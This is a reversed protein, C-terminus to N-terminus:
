KKLYNNAGDIQLVVTLEVETGQGPASKITCVGGIKELRRALNKLGHGSSIRGSNEATATAGPVFGRGDDKIIFSFGDPQTKLQLSVEAAAAHRVTNNLTEKVALFLNHRVEASLVFSPPQAPLDLRCRLGAQTAFEQFFKGVYTVLGDLTDNEPDIAWVIEDMAGVLEHATGSIQALHAPTEGPAARQALASQLMIQTLGAGLDDHIDRAIRERERAIARQQKLQELKKQLRRMVAFRVAGIIAAIITVGSLVDFWWTQWFYPRVALRIAAGKDSWIGDNNCATVQFIYKGPRLPGYHATRKGDAEVWGDDFGKLRYRFRVKDPAAFSLATYRFDFQHRGPPIQLESNPTRLESNKGDVSMEEIVVAPALRNVPVEDPQVSVLGKVTAFWLTGDRGRWCSPQYNGSCELTPLGDYLGYGVCPLSSIKGADFDRIWSKRFYFIGKHSGIWIKGMGDDLIQCIIDSPLGSQTTYRTFKGDKFRLLGGRFTGVWLTGDAEPLLSWIAQNGLNDNVPYATFKGGSFKYLGDADTGIWLDGQRDEALARIDKKDFGNAASFTIIVNNSLCALGNQRGIWLRGLHDMLLVKIGHVSNSRPPQSIKGDEFIYLDERGASLWVRGQGDPFASFFNGMYNGGPLDFRTLAGDRWRNLGGGLTGIWVDGADDECVTSVVPIPLGEATGIVHFKKERLRVLGGRDVGVWINGERDQFWCGVRDDPLGDASSIRQTSGDPKAHFIGRGYHRFWIGGDRDEYASLFTTATAGLDQWWDAEAVWRRDACKRVKGDAMIWCGNSATCAMFSTNVVPEGNTPTQDEFHDGRWLLIRKETGVWIRGSDDATLCNAREGNLYDRSSVPESNTGVIKELAGDRTVYWLTGTNDQHFYNGATAGALPISQWGDRADSNETRCVLQGRLLAFFIQNTRSFVASVQGGSWEHTFVGNRWSTMSGDHTNIWLTGQADVFLGDVRAHKLEPTNLPDFTVFQVGDFRALGNYTGIWLYGDPTQAIAAVSSDPLGSDSTWLDILYDENGAPSCFGTRVVFFVLALAIWIASPFLGAM